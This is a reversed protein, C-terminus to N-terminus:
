NKRLRWMLAMLLLGALFGGGGAYWAMKKTGNLVPNDFLNNSFHLSAIKWGDSERMVTTTWATQLQMTNGTRFEFTDTTHGNAIAVDDRLFTAAGDLEAKITIGSLVSDASGLMRGFYAEIEAPGRAVTMDQFVVVSTPLLYQSAPALDKANLALEVESLISLLAQRDAAHPDQALANQAWLLSIALIAVLKAKTM